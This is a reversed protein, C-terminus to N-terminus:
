IILRESNIELGDELNLGINKDYYREDCLIVFQDGLTKENVIEAVGSDTLHQRVEKPVSVTYQQLKRAMSMPTTTHRLESILKDITPNSGDAGRYPVIIPAVNSEILKFERDVDEFPFVLRGSQKNLKSEISKADLNQGKIWYVERFYERIAELTTPDSHRNLIGQAISALQKIEHPTPDQEPEFVTTIGVNLKGERNCRGAAQVISELGSIARWVRPFDLDVGAEVLSTAVVIVSLRGELRAHVWELVDRRHRACLFSTLCTAGDVDDLKRFIKRVHRRTNLICLCQRSERLKAALSADDISGTNVIRTRKLQEYLEGPKPCLEVVNEFGKSFESACLAPQTATCLVISSNWNRVLEDLASVCPRLYPLPLTQAEDLIIVSNAINHLKRCQSPRNSFLSEFFQVATTVIIPADWNEMALSIKERSERNPILEDDFTSHHEIIFDTNKEGRNQLAARFVKATQEIISTYPIIYIIRYLHHHVAHSLAFNLSTLTKGGGTPVTLTFVGRHMSGRGTAHLRIKRRLENLDNKSAGLEKCDLFSTLRSNLEGIEPHQGRHPIGNNNKNYYEETDLYDADVLASFLMRIFFSVTFGISEQDKPKLSFNGLDALTPLTIETKWIPDLEPVSENLRLDLSRIRSGHSGNALGTHHGAIVYALIKGVDQEYLVIATQAGATSHNVRKGSGRIRRQFEHSYKGLDHLRGAVDALVECQNQNLFRRARSGTDILHDVLPHWNSEDRGNTHAFFRTM